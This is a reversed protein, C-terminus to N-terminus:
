KTNPQKPWGSARGAAVAPMKRAKIRPPMLRLQLQGPRLLVQGTHIVHQFTQRLLQGGQVPLGPLRRQPGEGKDFQLHFEVRVLSPTVAKLVTEQTAADAPAPAALTVNSPAILAAAALCSALTISLKM